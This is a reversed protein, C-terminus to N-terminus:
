TMKFRKIVQFFKRKGVSLTLFNHYVTYNQIKILLYIAKGSSPDGVYLFVINACFSSLQGRVQLVM